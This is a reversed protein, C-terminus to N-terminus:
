LSIYTDRGNKVVWRCLATHCLTHFVTDIAILTVAVIYSVTPYSFWLHMLVIVFIVWLSVHYVIMMERNSITYQWYLSTTHIRTHGWLNHWSKAYVVCRCMRM